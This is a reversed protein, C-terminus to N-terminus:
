ILVLFSTLKSMDGTNIYTQYKSEIEYIRPAFVDEGYFYSSEDDHMCVAVFKDHKDIKYGEVPVGNLTNAGVGDLILINRDKDEHLEKNLRKNIEIYAKM